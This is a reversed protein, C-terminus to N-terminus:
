VKTDESDKESLQKSFCGMAKMLFVSFAFFTAVRNFESKMFDM